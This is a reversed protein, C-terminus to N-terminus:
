MYNDLYLKSKKLTNGAERNDGGQNGTKCGGSEWVGNGNGTAMERQWEWEWEGNGNGTGTGMGRNGTGRKFSLGHPQYLNDLFFFARFVQSALLLCAREIIHIACKFPQRTM